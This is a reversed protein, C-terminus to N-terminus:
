RCIGFQCDDFPDCCRRSSGFSFSSCRGGTPVCTGFRNRGFRNRGFLGRRKKGKRRRAEATDPVFAGFAAAVVAAGALKLARGRSIQAERALEDFMHRDEDQM